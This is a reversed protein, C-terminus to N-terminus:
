NEKREWIMNSPRLNFVNDYIDLQSQSFIMMIDDDGYDFLEDSKLHEDYIFDFVYGEKNLFLLEDDKKIILYIRNDRTKIVMGEKLEPYEQVEEREWIIELDRDGYQNMDFTYLNLKLRFIKMVDFETDDEIDILDDDYYYIPLWGDNVFQMKDGNLAVWYKKGSRLEVIMAPLLLSKVTDVKIDEDLLEVDNEDCYWGFGDECMRRCDHGFINKDFEIGVSGSNTTEVVTGKSGRVINTNDFPSKLICVRDGVKFKM